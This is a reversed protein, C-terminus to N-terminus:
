EGQARRDRLESKIKDIQNATLANKIAFLLKFHALKFENEMKLLGEAMALANQSEITNGSLAQRFEQRKNQLTWQLEAVDSQFTKVATSINKRQADTIGLRQQHKMIVDPPYLGMSFIQKNSAFSDTQSSHAPAVWACLFIIGALLIRLRKM